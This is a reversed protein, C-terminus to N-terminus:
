LLPRLHGFNHQNYVASLFDALRTSVGSINFSMWLFWWLRTLKPSDLSTELPPENKVTGERAIHHLRYGM